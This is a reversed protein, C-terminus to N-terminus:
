SFFTFIGFTIVPAIQRSTSDFVHAICLTNVHRIYDMFKFPWSHLGFFGIYGLEENESQRGRERGRKGQRRDVNWILDLSEVKLRLEFRSTGRKDRM